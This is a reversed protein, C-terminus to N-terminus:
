YSYWLFLTGCLTQLINWKKKRLASCLIQLKWMPKPINEEQLKLLEKLKTNEYELAQIKEALM